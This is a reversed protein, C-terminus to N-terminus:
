AVSKVSVGRSLGYIVGGFWYDGDVRFWGGDDFGVARESYGRRSNQAPMWIKIDKAEKESIRELRGILKSADDETDFLTQLYTLGEKTKAVKEVQEDEYVPVILSTEKPEVVNSGFNHIIRAGLDSPNYSIRTSTVLLSKNFDKRLIPLILNPVRYVDSASIMAKGERNFFDIWDRQTRYSGNDASSLDIIPEM